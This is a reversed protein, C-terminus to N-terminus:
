QSGSSAEEHLEPLLSLNVGQYYHALITGYDAGSAAMAQAGVQSM